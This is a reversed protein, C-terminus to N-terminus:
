FFLNNDCKTWKRTPPPLSSASTVYGRRSQSSDTERQIKRAMGQDLRRLKKEYEAQEDLMRLDRCLQVLFKLCETNTPFMVHTQRYLELAKQLQGGRRQCGAM